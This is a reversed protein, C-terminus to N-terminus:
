REGTMHGYTFLQVERLYICNRVHMVYETYTLGHGGLIDKSMKKREKSDNGEEL